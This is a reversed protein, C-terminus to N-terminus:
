TQKSEVVTTVLLLLCNFAILTMQSKGTVRLDLKMYSSIFVIESLRVNDNVSPSQIHCKCLDTIM